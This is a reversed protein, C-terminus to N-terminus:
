DIIDLGVTILIAALVPIPVYQMYKGLGLLVALLFLSSIVGALRTRGGAKVNVISSMTTGAGPLGGFIASAVNGMGQGILERNSQHKTETIKDIIVATLLTDICGLAGLTLAASIIFSPQSFDMHWLSEIQLTPLGQAVEGILPVSLGTVLAVFTGVLLAMLAAPIAPSFKPTAYLIVLTSGGLALAQLNMDRFAQSGGTLVEYITAPAPLGM